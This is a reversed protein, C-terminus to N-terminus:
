KKMEKSQTEPELKVIRVVAPEWEEVTTGIVAGTRYGDLNCISIFLM